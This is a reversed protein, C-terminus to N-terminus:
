VQEMLMLVERCLDMSRAQVCTMLLASFIHTNPVVGNSRM